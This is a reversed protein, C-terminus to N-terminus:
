KDAIKGLTLLYAEMDQASQKKMIRMLAEELEGPQEARPIQKAALMKLAPYQMQIGTMLVKSLALLREHREEKKGIEQEREAIFQYLPTERLVDDLLMTFRRQLWEHDEVPRKQEKFALSALLHTLTLLERGITDYAPLLREIAQDVVERTAGDKALSVLPLLGRREKVLLEEYPTDWLLVVKFHFELTKEGEHNYLILPSEPIKGGKRLYIVYSETICSYYIYTMLFYGLLRKEMGIDPGSQIEFHATMLEDRWSGELLADAEIKMSQFEGSLRVGTHQVGPLLWDFFDQACLALLRKFAVDYPKNEENTQFM